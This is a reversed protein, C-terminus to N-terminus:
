SLPEVRYNVGVLKNVDTDYPMVFLGIDPDTDEFVTVFERFATQNPAVIVAELGSRVEEGTRPDLYRSGAPEVILAGYLGERGNRYLNGFDRLLVTGLESPAWYAYQRSEGPQVTQDPNYGVNVGLSGQPDVALADLHFSVPQTTENTLDVLLCDGANARIVLPDPRKDGALVAGVDEDLVFLKGANISVGAEQNFVLPMEIATVEFDTVTAGGPCPNGPDTASPPAAGTTPGDSPSAPPPQRGPLPQLGDVLSDEVRLIGWAGEVFHRQSGNYFLYDGARAAAGGAAAVYANFRESIGVGFTTLEPSDEQFREQRFTHGTIHFPHVEETASTLLRFLIPDGVYAKVVPSWPDGYMASSLAFEPPGAGRETDRHLPEARLNFSAGTLPNRDNMFIVAERFSGELGPLVEGRTHIDAYPGSLVETGSSPDHYTSGEPEAILAGFLGKGWRNLADVHDHFYIAGNQRAVYWRYRVFEASVLEGPAHDNLLPTEFILDNGDIAAIEATEVVDPMQDIGVAVAGGAHFISPDDVTLRTQGAVLPDTVVAHLDEQTFPRVAQEYNAGSIVGDSALVDFQVFHIHINTKMLNPRPGHSQQELENVLLVDVCDGQNARIALPYKFDPDSRALEEYEKVVFIMGTEDTIEETVPVDTTIAHVNYSRTPAGAPCLSREGNAGPEAPSGGYGDLP